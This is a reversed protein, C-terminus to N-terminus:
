PAHRGDCPPALRWARGHGSEAEAGVRAPAVVAPVSDFAPGSSFRPAGAMTAGAAADSAVGSLGAITNKWTEAVNLGLPNVTGMGTIVIREQM